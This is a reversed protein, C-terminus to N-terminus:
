TRRRTPNLQLQQRRTIVHTNNLQWPGARDRRALCVSDSSRGRKHWLEDPWVSEWDEWTLNYERGLYREQNRHKLWAYYKDRRVPDPGTIWKSPDIRKGQPYIGTRTSKPTYKNTM